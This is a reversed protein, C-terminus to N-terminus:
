RAGHAHEAAGQGEHAGPAVEAVTRPPLERVKEGCRLMKSGFYPNLLDDNPQLWDGGGGPVMPCYFQTFPQHADESRVQTALPVVAQSVQKFQKRAGALDLHHLHESIAAIEQARKAASAPLAPDGALSRAAQHLSQVSSEPPQRDSALAGQIEFYAAYLSELDKGAEGGIPMVAVRDFALPGGRQHNKAIARTPDILSPRGALQMQSDILFNGATAVSEGAKLGDLIVVKNPLIAGVTVPRIEFRGPATEVYVVSNGGALLVASRPVHLSEPQPLPADAFGYKSTPVLDM